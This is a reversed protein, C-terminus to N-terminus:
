AANARQDSTSAFRRSRMWAEVEQRDYRCYRGVKYYSPGDGTIRFKNLTSVSLGIVESAQAVTLLETM